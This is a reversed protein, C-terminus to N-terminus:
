SFKRIKQSLISARMAIKVLTELWRIILVLACGKVIM